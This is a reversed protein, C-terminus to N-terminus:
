LASRPARTPSARRAAVLVADRPALVGAGQLRRPVGRLPRATELLIGRAEDPTLAGHVELMQALVATTIPAAFSTGEVEKYHSSLYREQRIREALADVLSTDRSAGRFRDEVEREEEIGLLRFLASAERAQLTGPLMPAPLLVAPAVLDPKGGGHSSSEWVTDDSTDRTNGDSIGGVTLALKSSGPLEPPATPDNGAAAVVLVSAAALAELAAEVRRRDPDDPSVGLSVNVVRVSLEPHHLVFELARAVHLGRIRGSPDSAKVLVVEASSAPGHFRGGSLYGSGAAMATTMTGHWASPNPTFFEGPTPSDQTVDAYTKIRREPYLLDPHAYFGSDVFAITVGRGTADPYLELREALSLVAPRRSLPTM